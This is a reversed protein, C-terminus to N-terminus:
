SKNEWSGKTYDWHRVDYIKASLSYGFLNIEVLPGAHDFGTFNLDVAFEFMFSPFHILSVSYAKRQSILKERQWLSKFTNKSFPNRVGFYFKLM